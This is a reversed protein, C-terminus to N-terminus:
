CRVWGSEWSGGKEILFDERDKVNLQMPWSSLEGSNNLWPELDVSYLPVSPM